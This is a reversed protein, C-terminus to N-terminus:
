NQEHNPSGLQQIIHTAIARNLTGKKNLIDIFIVKCYHTQAQENILIPQAYAETRQPLGFVNPYILLSETAQFSHNYAYMQRLDEDSPTPQKLIKWKTDLIYNQEGYQLWIDPRLRRNAWFRRSVQAQVKWPKPLTQRLQQFIYHEFLQNMDFLIALIPCDGFQTDPSYQLTIIKALDLATHYHQYQPLQYFQQFLAETPRINKQTPFAKLLYRIKHKLSQNVWFQEVIKLALYLVQHIPHNYDYQQQHTYIKHPQTLNKQVQKAFNIQGKWTHGNVAVKHYNKQLGKAFLQEIEQVFLEIYLWLLPSTNLQLPAKTLADIKIFHCAHLLDLLVKQWNHSTPSHQDTKPLIEITLGGVQLVGVYQRFRVGKHVLSFYKQGHQENFRTLAELQQQTLEQKDVRLTQHEFVQIYNSTAM